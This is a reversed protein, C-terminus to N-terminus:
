SASPRELVEDWSSAVFMRDVMGELVRVDATSQIVQTVAPLPSGFRSAGLRLVLRRTALAEGEVRGEERGEERGEARGLERGEERGELLGISRGQEQGRRVAAQYVSSEEIWSMRHVM